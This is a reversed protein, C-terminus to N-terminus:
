ESRFRPSGTNHVEVDLLDALDEKARCPRPLGRTGLAPCRAVGVQVDRDVVVGSDGVDLGVVVLGRWGQPTRAVSGPSM